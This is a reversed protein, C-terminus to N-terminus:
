SPPERVVLVPCPAHHVCHGSVSGLLMGTFAGRGHSGVVLLGADRAEEILVPAPHGQIVRRVVDVGPHEGLAEAVSSELAQRAQGEFDTDSFDVPMGYGPPLQWALVVRLPEGTLQAQRAAWRLARESSASGDVGVVIPRPEDAESM